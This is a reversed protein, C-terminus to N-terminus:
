FPNCVTDPAGNGASGLLATNIAASDGFCTLGAGANGTVVSPPTSPLLSSGLVLRIGDGSGPGTSVTGQIQTNFIQAVSRTSLGLGMGQNGTIVADRIVLSSGLFAFVGGQATPGGNGTITNVSTFPFTVNGITVSAGRLFVGQAANNAITNGGLIDASAGTVAIGFRGVTSAPDTGNFTVSNNGILASGGLAVGIGNAGNQTITNGASENVSDLGIRGSTNTGIFVGIRGNQRVTSNMLTVQSGETSVGDRPNSQVTSADITAGSGGVVLIGTRGTSQVTTGRVTFNGAGSAVIGNKGGSVVLNEITVRDARVTVADVAADPGNIAAGPEGRLTVDSREITVTENCVGQVLVILARDENGRDLAKALTNGNSCNVQVVRPEPNAAAISGSLFTGVVLALMAGRKTSTNM